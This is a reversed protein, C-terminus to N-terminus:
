SLVVGNFVNIEGKNEIRTTELPVLKAEPVFSTEAAVGLVGVAGAVAAECTTAV